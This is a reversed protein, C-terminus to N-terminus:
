RFCLTYGEASLQQSVYACAQFLFHKYIIRFCHTIETNAELLFGFIRVAMQSIRIIIKM